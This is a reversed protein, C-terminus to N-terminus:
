DELLEPNEHINGIVESKLMQDDCIASDDDLSLSAYIQSWRITFTRESQQWGKIIDGEFIEKGNKDLLGCSQGLTSRDIAMDHPVGDVANWYVWSQRDAVSLARFRFRNAKM